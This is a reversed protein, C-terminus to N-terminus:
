TAHEGDVDHALVCTPKLTAYTAVCKWFAIQGGKIKSVGLDVDPYRGPLKSPDTAINQSTTTTEFDFHPGGRHSKRQHRLRLAIAHLTERHETLEVWGGMGSSKYFDETAPLAMLSPPMLPILRILRVAERGTLGPMATLSPLGENGGGDVGRGRRGGGAERRGGHGGRGVEGGGGERLRRARVGMARLYTCIRAQRSAKIRGRAVQGGCRGAAAGGGHAAVRGQERWAASDFEALEGEPIHGCRGTDASQETGRKAESWLREPHM